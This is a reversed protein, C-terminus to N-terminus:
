IDQLITPRCPNRAREDERFDSLNMACKSDVIFYLREAGNTEAIIAWDPRNNGFQTPIKFWNPLRLFYKIKDELVLQKAFTAEEGSQNAIKDFLTQDIRSQPGVLSDSLLDRESITLHHYDM